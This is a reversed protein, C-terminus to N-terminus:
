PTEPRAAVIVRLLQPKGNRFIRVQAASNVPTHAVKLSLDTPGRIPQDNWSVIVDGAAMGVQAAPTGDEVYQVEVGHGPELKLQGATELDIEQMRVGLYGRQVRGTERLRQYIERAISSPIAFSVGQFGEGVIATNIGVVQGQMNVLPGGSNGPNVAADTQLFDQYAGNAVVNHRGKASVIGATVSRDLGFPSGIALVWDGVELVQSDGWDAAVLNSGEVKLVALDTPKDAGVLEADLSRGDALRVWIRDAREVVHTNTLIYGAPDIIVGSGEGQMLTQKTDSSGSEQAAWQTALSTRIHVVAPCISQSILRFRQDAAPLQALEERALDVEAQIRARTAAYQVQYVVFPAAFIASLLLMVGALLLTLQNSSKKGPPFNTM